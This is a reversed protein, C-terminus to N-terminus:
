EQQNRKAKLPTVKKTVSKTSSKSNDNVQRKQAILASLDVAPFNFKGFPFNQTTNSIFNRLSTITISIASNWIFDAMKEESLEESFEFIGVGESFISYGPVPKEVENISIKIYVYFQNDVPRPMFDIDIDYNLFCERVDVGEDPEVFRYKLETIFFDVLELQSKILKM